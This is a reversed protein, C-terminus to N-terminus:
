ACLRATACGQAGAPASTRWRLDLRSAARRAQGSVAALHGVRPKSAGSALDEGGGTTLHLRMAPSKTGHRLRAVLGTFLRHNCGVKVYTPFSMGGFLDRDERRGLSRRRGSRYAQQARSETAPCEAGDPHM